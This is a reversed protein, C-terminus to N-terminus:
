CHGPMELNSATTGGEDSSDCDDDDDDSTVGEEHVRCGLGRM